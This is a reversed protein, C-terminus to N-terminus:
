FEFDGSFTEPLRSFTITEKRKGPQYKGKIDMKQKSKTRKRGTALFKPRIHSFVKWFM